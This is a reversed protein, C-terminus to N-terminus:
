YPQGEDMQIERSHPEMKNRLGMLWGVGTQVKIGHLQAKAETWGVDLTVGPKAQLTEVM